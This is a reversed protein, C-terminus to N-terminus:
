DERATRRPGAARSPSPPSPSIPPVLGLSPKPRPTKQVTTGTVRGDDDFYVYFFTLFSEDVDSWYAAVKRGSELSELIYGEDGEHRNMIARAEDLTMGSRIRTFRNEPLQSRWCFYGLAAIAFVLFVAFLGLWRKM